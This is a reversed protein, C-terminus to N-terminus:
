AKTIPKIVMNMARSTIVNVHEHRIILLIGALNALVTAVTNSNLPNPKEDQRMGHLKELRSLLEGYAEGKPEQDQMAMFVRTIEPDVYTNRKFM